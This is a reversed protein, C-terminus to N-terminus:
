RGVLNSRGTVPEGVGTRDAASLRQAEVLMQIQRARDIESNALTDSVLMKQQQLSSIQRGQQNNRLKFEELERQLMNERVEQEMRVREMDAERESLTRHYQRSINQVEGSLQGQLRKMDRLESNTHELSTESQSRQISCDKLASQLRVVQSKELERDKLLRRLAQENGKAAAIQQRLNDRLSRAEETLRKVHDHVLTADQLRQACTQIDTQMRAGDARLKELHAEYQARMTDMKGKVRMVTDKLQANEDMLNNVKAAVADRAASCKELSNIIQNRHTIAERLKQNLQSITADYRQRQVAVTQRLIDVRKKYDLEIQGFQQAQSEARSLETNLSDRQQLFEAMKQEYAARFRALEQNKQEYMRGNEQIQKQATQLQRRQQDLSLRNAEFKNQLESVKEQYQSNLQDKLENYKADYALVMSDKQNTLLRAQQRLNRREAEKQQREQRLAAEANKLRNNLQGVENQHRRKLEYSATQMQVIDQQVQGMKRESRMLENSLREIEARDRASAKEIKQATQMEARAFEETKRDHLQQLHNLEESKAQLRQNVELLDRALQGYPQNSQDSRQLAAKGAETSMKLDSIAKELDVKLHEIEEQLAQERDSLTTGQKQAAKMAFEERMQAMRQEYSQKLEVLAKKLEKENQTFQQMSKGLHIERGVQNNYLGKYEEVQSKLRQITESYVGAVQKSEGQCRDLRKQLSNVTQEAASRGTEVNKLEKSLTQLGQMVRQEHRGARATTDALESQLKSIELENEPMRRRALEYEQSLAFAKADHESAGAGLYSMEDQLQKLRAIPHDRQEHPLLQRQGIAPQTLDQMTVLLDRLHQSCDTDANCIQKAGELEEKLMTIQGKLLRLKRTDIMEPESQEWRALEIEAHKLRDLINKVAIYQHSPCYGNARISNGQRLCPRWGESTQVFGACHSNPETM